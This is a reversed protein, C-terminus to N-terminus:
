YTVLKLPMSTLQYGTLSSLEGITVLNTCWCVSLVFSILGLTKDGVFLIYKGNLYNQAKRKSVEIKMSFM